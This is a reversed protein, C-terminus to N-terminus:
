FFFACSTISVNIGQLNRLTLLWESSIEVLMNRENREDLMALEQIVGRFKWWAMSVGWEELLHGEFVQLEGFPELSLVHGDGPFLFLNRARDLGGKLVWPSLSPDKEIPRYVRGVLALDSSVECEQSNARSSPTSGRELFWVWRRQPLFPM